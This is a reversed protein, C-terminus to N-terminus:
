LGGVGPRNENEGGHGARSRGSGRRNCNTLAGPAGSEDEAALEGEERRTLRGQPAQKALGIIRSLEAKTIRRPSVAGPRDEAGEVALM